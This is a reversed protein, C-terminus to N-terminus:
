VRWPILTALRPTHMAPASMGREGALAAPARGDILTLWFAQWTREELEGRVQELARLYLRNLEATEEAADGALPDVVEQLRQWAASGREARARGAQRRCYTAIANRTIARLWGCFTDGPRDRRFGALNAAASALVEQSVDEADEASLGARGCWLRVLPGYLDVVRAWAAGDNARARELLTLSTQQPV